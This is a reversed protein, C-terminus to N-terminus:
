PGRRRALHLADLSVEFFRAGSPSSLALRPAKGGFAVLEALPQGDTSALGLKPSGDSEMAFAARAKGEADNLVLGVAGRPADGLAARTRGQGDVLELRRVKLDGPPLAKLVASGVAAVLAAVAVARWGANQRELSAVRKELGDM